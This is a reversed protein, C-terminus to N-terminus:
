GAKAVGYIFGMFINDSFSQQVDKLSTGCANCSSLTFACPKSCSGCIKVTNRLRELAMADDKHQERFEEISGLFRPDAPAHLQHVHPASGRFGALYDTTVGISNDSLWKLFQEIEICQAGQAADDVLKNIADASIQESLM